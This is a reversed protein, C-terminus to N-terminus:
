DKQEAKVFDHLEAVNLDSVAWFTMGSNIWHIMNYGQQTNVAESTTPQNSSPWIYLNIIHQRRAYVAVAVPRGDVYDLRGGKLTFGSDALDPVPPSFDLKGNFWPKVTHRDDNDIDTTRGQLSRVHSSVLDRAVLTGGSPAPWFLSVALMLILVAIIGAEAIAWSWSWSLARPQRESKRGLQATVREQLGAPADFYLDGSRIARRLKQHSQYEQSCVSCEHLHGEIDLSRVLDLEGDVYAGILERTDNCRMNM